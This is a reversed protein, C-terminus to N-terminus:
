RQDISRLLVSNRAALEEPNTSVNLQLNPLGTDPDNGVTILEGDFKTDSANWSKESFKLLVGGFTALAALTGAVAEPNSLDWLGALALYLTALGPLVLTVVKKLLDYKENSILHDQEPTEAM